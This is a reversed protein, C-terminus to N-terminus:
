HKNAAIGDNSDAGFGFYAYQTNVNVGLAKVTDNTTDVALKSNGGSDVVTFTSTSDTAPLVKLHQNSILLSSNDGSGTKAQRLTGDVGNNSNDIRFLDLYTEAPDKGTFSM